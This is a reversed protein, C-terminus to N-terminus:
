PTPFDFQIQLTGQIEDVREKLGRLGFGAAPSAGSANGSDFGCGDDQIQLRVSKSGYQLQVHIKQPSAHRLANQ